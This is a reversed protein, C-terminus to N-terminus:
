SAGGEPIIMKAVTGNAGTTVALTGGCQRELRERVNEMGVRRREDQRLTVSSFGRGDDEVIVVVCGDERRTRLCVTGGEERTRIGHRIANEVLPQVTLPPVMFDEVQLDYVVEMPRALDAMELSVYHRVHGLEEAFPVLRLTSMIDLHSRLYDSFDQIAVEARDPDEAVLEKIATLSNFVFHSQVQGSLLRVRSEAADTRAKALDEELRSQVGVYLLALVISVTPDLMTLDQYLVDVVAALLVLLGCVCLRLTTALGNREYLSIVIVIMLLSQTVYLVDNLYILPGAVLQNAETVLYFAHTWPNTFVVMLNVGNVLWLFRILPDMRCSPGYRSGSVDTYVYVMIWVCTLVGFLQSLVISITLLVHVPRGPIGTLSWSVIDAVLSAVHMSLACLLLHRKRHRQATRNAMEFLLVVTLTLGFIEATINIDKQAVLNM